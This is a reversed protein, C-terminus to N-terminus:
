RATERQRAMRRTWRDRPPRAPQSRAAVLEEMTPPRLEEATFPLGLGGEEVWAHEGALVRRAVASRLADDNRWLDRLLGKVRRRAGRAFLDALEDAPRTGMARARAIAAAVAFVEMAVDVVRFLFAQRRELKPGNLVMGHFVARALQRATRDAWRAHTALRGLESFRPWAGWGVWRTPYWWAYYAAIRPLAALKQGLTARADALAGAVQLHTDVAERAMFLHMVESSGEFILNVRCDRMMREVGIGPEGRAELSGETEYGRGGRVQLTRDVIQWARTTNWEKAAAAELRIDTGPRDALQAVLDSVAEMTFATAATDAIGHAIAEHEGIPRGWQVRASAWKRCVELCTKAMGATAAPLSLRGTNLTVLAIKLGAGEDGILNRAPVRVREFSLVANALARLGMFRSRHEVKVGPWRTEVVFANIRDTAPDRAMVVLLEALTGNTCWLKQGDILWDGEPTRTCTTALRAPDSGVAPETLAFASIAGKACRPLYEQRLADSGFLKVPQPVGIAQHASLLATVNGDCSGLLQMVRVYEPHTLGLGGYEEPIKMGFAGLAALGDIVHRPYEGSEDIKQSDVKEELFRRLGEYFAKFRPRSLDPAALPDVLDLRLRGQFLERIFSEGRWTKERAAEAVERSRLEDESM